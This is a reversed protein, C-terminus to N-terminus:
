LAGDKYGRVKLGIVKDDFSKDIDDFRKNEGSEVFRIVEDERFRLLRGGIYYGKLLGRKRYQYVTYLKVRLFEAVENPTLYRIKSPNNEM